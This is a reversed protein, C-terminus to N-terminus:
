PCTFRTSTSASTTRAALWGGPGVLRPKSVPSFDLQWVRNPGTPPNAFAAKRRGALDRREKQYSVPLILAEDRLLRLVTAQSVVHGDHPTM